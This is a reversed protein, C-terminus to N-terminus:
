ATIYDNYKVNLRKNNQIKNDTIYNKFNCYPKVIITATPPTATGLGIVLDNNYPNAELFLQYFQNLINSTNSEKLNENGPINRYINKRIKELTSSHCNITLQANFNYNTILANKYSDSNGHELLRPNLKIVNKVKINAGNDVHVFSGAIINQIPVFSENSMRIRTGSIFSPYQYLQLFRTTCDMSPSIYYPFFNNIFIGSVDLLKNQYTIDDGGANGSTGIFNAFIDDKFSILTSTNNSYIYRYNITGTNLLITVGLQHPFLDIAKIDSTSTYIAVVKKFTNSAGGWCWIVGTDTLGFFYRHNSYLKIFKYGSTPWLKVNTYQLTISSDNQHVIGGYDQDGWCFVRGTITLAAFAHFTGVVQIIHGDSIDNNGLIRPLRSSGNYLVASNPIGSADLVSRGTTPNETRGGEKENGKVEININPAYLPNKRISEDHVICVARFSSVTYKAYGQIIDDNSITTADTNIRQVYQPQNSSSTLNNFYGLSYSNPTHNNIGLGIRVGNNKIMIFGDGSSYIRNINTICSTTATFTVNSANEQVQTSLSTGTIASTNRAVEGNSFLILFDDDIDVTRVTRKYPIISRIFPTTQNIYPCVTINHLNIYNAIEYGFSSSNETFENRYGDNITYRRIRNNNLFTIIFGKSFPFVDRVNEIKHIYRINRGNQTNNTFEQNYIPKLYLYLFDDNKLIAIVTQMRNTATFYKKVNSYPWTRNYTVQIQKQLNNKLFTDTRDGYPADITAGVDHRIIDDYDNDRVVLKNNNVKSVFVEDAFYGGGWKDTAKKVIRISSATNNILHSSYSTGLPNARLEYLESPVFEGDNGLFDYALFNGCLDNKLYNSVPNGYVDQNNDYANFGYTHTNDFFNFVFDLTKINDTFYKDRIDIDDSEMFWDGGAETNGTDNSSARLDVGTDVELRLIIDRIKQNNWLSCAFLDLRELGVKEKLLVIWDRLKNYSNESNGSLDAEKWLKFVVSNKDAHQIIGIDEYIKEKEIIKTYIENLTSDYQNFLIYDVDSALSSIIIDYDIETDILLVKM